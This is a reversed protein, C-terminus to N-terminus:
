REGSVRDIDALVHQVLTHLNSDKPIGLSDALGTDLSGQQGFLQQLEANPQYTILWEPAACQNQLAEVLLSMPPCLAPLNVSLGRDLNSDEGTLVHAIGLAVAHLSAILSTGDPSIPLTYPEGNKAAYFIESLFASKMSAANPPRGVVGPIRLNTARLSGRRALTAIWAEMMLKHAGYLLDPQTPTHEDITSPLNGGYVAISSAFVLRPQNNLRIIRDILLRTGEVNVKWALEPNQEAGGGTVTALHAIAEVRGALCQTLAASDCFDGTVWTVHDGSSGEDCQHDLAIVDHEKLLGLLKRGIFGNAGTVLIRM